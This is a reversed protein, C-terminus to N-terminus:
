GVVSTSFAQAWWRLGSALVHKQFIIGNPVQISTGRDREDKNLSLATNSRHSTLHRRQSWVHTKLPQISTGSECQIWFPKVSRPANGDVCIVSAVNQSPVSHSVPRSHCASGLGLKETSLDVCSIFSSIRDKCFQSNSHSPTYGHPLLGAYQVPPSRKTFFMGPLDGKGGYFLRRTGWRTLASFINLHRRFIVDSQIPYLVFLYYKPSEYHLRPNCYKYLVIRLVQYKCLAHMRAHM